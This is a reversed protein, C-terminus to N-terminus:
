SNKKYLQRGLVILALIILILILWELLTDPLFSGGFLASAGFGNPCDDTITTLSYAIADEQARSSPNTYVVTATTVVLEGLQADSIIRGRIRVRGEEQPELRGIGVTLARESASYDGRTANIFVLEKQHNVQLVADVLTTRSINKYIVEYEIEGGACMEDYISEIRLELLSATSRAVTTNRVVTTSGPKAVVATGTRFPLTEGYAIGNQNQVVARYFYNTNSSLGSLTQNYAISAVGGINQPATTGGLNPTTGWEFWAATNVPANPVAIGNLKATNATIITAGSTVAQPRVNIPGPNIITDVYVTVSDSDSCGNGYGRITYTTTIDPRVTVSGDDSRNSYGPTIDVDDMGTTKWRLKTSEGRKIRTDDADFEDIECEDDEDIDEDDVKITLTRSEGGPYARLTYTTDYDPSVTVSGDEDLNDDVHSINVYDCNTTSWRLKTSDGEDISYDDATFSDIECEDDEVDGDGSVRFLAMVAGQTDWGPSVDGIYLGSSAFLSGENSVTKVGYEGNKAARVSGPIFTLTEATSLRVTASGVARDITTAAVGGTFTHTTSRSSNKPQISLTADEALITTANHFYVQVGIVDGAKANVSTKWCGDVPGVDCPNTTFNAVTITPIDSPDTNFRGSAQVMAPTTLVMGALAFLSIIIKKM